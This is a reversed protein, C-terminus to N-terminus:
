REEDADEPVPAIPEREGSGPAQALGGSVVGPVQQGANTAANPEPAGAMDEAPTDAGGPLSVDEALHQDDPLSPDTSM